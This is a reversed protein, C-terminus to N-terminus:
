DTPDPDAIGLWTKATQIDNFVIVNQRQPDGQREFYRARQFSPNSSVVIALKNRMRKKPDQSILQSIEKLAEPTLASESIRQADFLERFGPKVRQDDSVAHEYNIVDDPTLVGTAVASVLTGNESVTYTVPM